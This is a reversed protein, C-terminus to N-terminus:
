GNSGTILATRGTRDIRNPNTATTTSPMTMTM